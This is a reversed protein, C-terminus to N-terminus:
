TVKRKKLKKDVLENERKRKLSDSDHTIIVCDCFSVAKRVLEIDMTEEIGIRFEEISNLLVLGNLNSIGGFVFLSNKYVTMSHYSRTSSGSALQCWTRTKFNFKYFGNTHRKGNFGGFVYLNDHHIAARAGCIKPPKFVLDNILHWKMSKLDLEYLENQLEGNHGGFVYICDKYVKCILDTIFGPHNGSVQVDVWCRKKLDFQCLNQDVVSGGIVFMMDNWVVAEHFARPLPSNMCESFVHTLSKWEKTKFKYVHLEDTEDEQTSTVGGFVIMEDRWVVTSHGAKKSPKNGITHIKTWKNTEFDYCHLDNVLTEDDDEGGFIFWKSDYVCASHLYRKSPANKCNRPSLWM